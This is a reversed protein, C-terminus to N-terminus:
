GSSSPPLGWRGGERCGQNGPLFLRESAQGKRASTQALSLWAQLHLTVARSGLGQSHCPPFSRRNPAGGSQASDSLPLSGNGRGELARLATHPSGPPPLPLPLAPGLLRCPKSPPPQSGPLSSARPWAKGCRTVSVARVEDTDVVRLITRNLLILNIFRPAIEQFVTDAKTMVERDRERERTEAERRGM